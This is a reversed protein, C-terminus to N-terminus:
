RAQRGRASIAHELAAMTIFGVRGPRKAYAKNYAYYLGKGAFQALVPETARRTYLVVERGDSLRMVHVAAGIVYVAFGGRVSALGPQNTDSGFESRWVQRRGTALDVVTLRGSQLAVLRSGDLAVGNLYEAHFRIKKVGGGPSLVDITQFRRSRLLAIRGHDISVVTAFDLGGRITRVLKASAGRVEYIRTSSPLPKYRPPPGIPNDNVDYVITRGDTVPGGLFTGIGQGGATSVLRKDRLWLVTRASEYESNDCVYALETSTLVLSSVTVCIGPLQRRIVRSNPGVRLIPGRPARVEREGFSPQRGFGTAVAFRDGLAGLAVIPLKTTLLPRGRPKVLPPRPVPKGSLRSAVWVPDGLQVDRGGAFAGTVPHPDRGNVRVAWTKAHSYAPAGFRLDRHAYLIWRGNPSWAPPTDSGGMSGGGPADAIFNHHDNVLDVVFLGRSTAYAIRERVPSWTAADVGPAIRHLGHGNPRVVYLSTRRSGQKIFSLWKGDASAQLGDISWGRPLTVIRRFFGNVRAAGIGHAIPFLVSKGNAAWVPAGTAMSDDVEQFGETKPTYVFDTDESFDASGLALLLQSGNPSWPQDPPNISRYLGSAKVPHKKGSRLDLIYPGRKGRVPAIVLANTGARNFSVDACSRATFLRSLSGGDSHVAYYSTRCGRTDTLM